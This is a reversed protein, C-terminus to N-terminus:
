EHPSPSRLMWASGSVLFPRARTRNRHAHRQTTQFSEHGLLHQM